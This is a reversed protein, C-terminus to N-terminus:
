QRPVVCATRAADFCAGGAPAREDLYVDVNARAAAAVAVAPLLRYDAYTQFVYRQRSFGRKPGLPTHLFYRDGKHLHAALFEWQESAFQQEHEIGRARRTADAAAWTRHVDRLYRALRPAGIAGSAVALAAFAVVATTRARGTV